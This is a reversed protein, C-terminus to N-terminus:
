RAATAPAASVVDSETDFYRMNELDAILGPGTPRWGLKQQTFESKGSLERGAFAAPWGFHRAADEPSISVAPVKLGRGIVEAIDRVPVGARTFEKKAIELIRERNRQADARPKRDTSESANTPM